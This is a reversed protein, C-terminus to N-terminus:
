RAAGLRKLAMRLLEESTPTHGNTEAVAELSERAETTSYGLAVLADRAEDFAPRLADPVIASAFSGDGGLKEKLELVMRGATKKGIGPVLTLADVDEALVAKRLADPSYASLIALAAKPGIGNVAILTEFVDREDGTQFGFLTMADERVHLHTHLTAQSGARGLAALSSAPCLVRYGVGAVDLVIGAPGTATITGRLTAIM